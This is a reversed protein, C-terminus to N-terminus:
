RNNKATKLSTVFVKLIELSESVLENLMAYNGINLEQLISFWYYSERSEKLSITLKNIFDKRSSAGRAEEYNAGVSTASRSLQIRFVEYEKNKPLSSLYRVSNISFKLLREHLNASFNGSSENKVSLNQEDFAGYSKM